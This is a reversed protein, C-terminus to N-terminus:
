WWAGRSSGACSLEEGIVTSFKRNCEQDIYVVILEWSSLIKPKVGNLNIPPRIRLRSAIWEGAAGDWGFVEVADKLLQKM